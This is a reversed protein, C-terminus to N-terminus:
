ELEQIFLPVVSIGICFVLGVALKIGMYITVGDYMSNRPAITFLVLYQSHFFRFIYTKTYVTPGIEYPGGYYKYNGDIDRCSVIGHQQSDYAFCIAAGM